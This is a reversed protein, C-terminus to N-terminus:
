KRPTRKILLKVIHYKYAFICFVSQHLVVVTFIINNNVRRIPGFYMIPSYYSLLSPQLVTGCLINYYAGYRCYQETKSVRVCRSLRRNRESKPFIANEARQVHFPRKGNNRGADFISSKTCMHCSPMDHLPFRAIETAPSAPPVFRLRRSRKAWSRFQRRARAKRVCVYVCQKKDRRKNKNSRCRYNTVCVDHCWSKNTKVM